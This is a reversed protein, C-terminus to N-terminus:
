PCGAAFANQFCLFDFIDCVGPGSSTDCDCAYPEGADFRNQFCLFDFIDLVGPGTSTDCDAYCETPAWGMGDILGGAVYGVTSLDAVLTASAEGGSFTVTYLRPTGGGLTTMYLVGAYADFALGATDGVPAQGAAWPIVTWVATGPGFAFSGIGEGTYDTAYLTDGVWELGVLGGATPYTRVLQGGPTVEHLSGSFTVRWLNGTSRRFAGDEKHGSLSPTYTHTSLVEGTRIDAVGVWQTTPTGLYLRAGDTAMNNFHSGGPPLAPRVTLDVSGTALNFRYITGEGQFESGFWLYGDALAPVSGLASGASLAALRVCVAAAAVRM